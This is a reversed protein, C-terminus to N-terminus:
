QRSAFLEKMEDLLKPAQVKIIDEAWNAKMKVNNAARFYKDENDVIDQLARILDPIIARRSYYEEASEIAQEPIKGWAAYMALIDFIDKYPEQLKRDSNALLKTYFCSQKDLFPVPFRDKDFDFALDYDAFSVFELKIYTDAHKIVTRVADRDSRIERAYEFEINVLENLQINDVTGRVARYSDKNPCLFDIDISERYEDLELAIRTGGGFIINNACFFDADFNNLASEIIKHHQLSYRSMDIHQQCLAAM